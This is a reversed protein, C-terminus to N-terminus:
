RAREKEHRFNVIDFLDPGHVRVVYFAGDERQKLEDLAWGSVGNERVPGVNMWRGPPLRPIEVEVPEAHQAPQPKPSWKGM